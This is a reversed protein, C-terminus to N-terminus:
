NPIDIGVIDEATIKQLDDNNPLTLLAVRNAQHELAIEFVNRVLRANASKGGSERQERELIKRVEQQAELTLLYQNQAVFKGFIM